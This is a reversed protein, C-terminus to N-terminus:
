PVRRGVMRTLVDQFEDPGIDLQEVVYGYLMMSPVSRGGRERELRHLTHLIVREVRTLGDRVDPIYDRPDTPM